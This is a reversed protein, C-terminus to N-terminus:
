APVPNTKANIEPRGMSNGRFISQFRAQLAEAMENQLRALEEPSIDGVVNGEGEIRNNNGEVKNESGKVANKEGKIQNGDGNWENDIGDILNHVGVGANGHQRDDLIYEARGVALLCAIMILIGLNLMSYFIIMM